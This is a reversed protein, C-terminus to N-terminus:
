KRDNVSFIDHLFAIYSRMDSYVCYTCLILTNVFANLQSHKFVSSAFLGRQLLPWGNVVLAEVKSLTLKTTAGDQRLLNAGQPSITLGVEDGAM